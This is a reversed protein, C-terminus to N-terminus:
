FFDPNIPVIDTRAFIETKEFPIMGNENMLYSTYTLYLIPHDPSIQLPEAVRGAKISHIERNEWYLKANYVRKVLVSLSIFNYDYNEIGPFNLHNITSEVFFAPVEDALYVRQYFLSPDEPKLSLLSAFTGVPRILKELQVRRVSKGSSRIISGLGADYKRSYRESQEGQKVFTGRGQKRFIYDQEEMEELAKRITIRSVKYEEILDSEPPLIADAEFEGSDIRDILSAMVVAYKPLVANDKSSM